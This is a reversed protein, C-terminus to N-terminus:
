SEDVSSIIETIKNYYDSEAAGFHELLATCLDMFDGANEETLYSIETAEVINFALEFEEAAAHQMALKVDAACKMVPAADVGEILAFSDSAEKYEGNEYLVGAEIFAKVEPKNKEMWQPSVMLTEALSFNGRAAFYQSVVGSILFVSVLLVIGLAVRWWSMKGITRYTRNFRINRYVSYKNEM